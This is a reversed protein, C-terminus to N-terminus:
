SHESSPGVSDSSSEVEPIRIRREEEQAVSANFEKALRENVAYMDANLSYTVVDGSLLTPAASPVRVRTVLTASERVLWQVVVANGVGNASNVIRNMSQGYM